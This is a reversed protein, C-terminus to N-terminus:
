ESRRSPGLQTLLTAVLMCLQAGVSAIVLHFDGIRVLEVGTREGIANGLIAGIVSALLLVAVFRDWRGRIAIFAALNMAAVIATLVLWPTM